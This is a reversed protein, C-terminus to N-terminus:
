KREKIVRYTTTFDINYEDVSEYGNVAYASDVGEVVQRFAKGLKWGDSIIVVPREATIALKKFSNYLKVIDEPKANVQRPPSMIIIPEDIAELEKNVFASMTYQMLDRNISNMIINNMNEMYNNCVILTVRSNHLEVCKTIPKDKYSVMDKYKVYYPSNKHVKGGNLVKIRDMEKAYVDSGVTGNPHKVLVYDFGIMEDHVVVAVISIFVKLNTRKDDYPVYHVVPKKLRESFLLARYEETLEDTLLSLEMDPYDNKFTEKFSEVKNTPIIFLNIGNYFKM